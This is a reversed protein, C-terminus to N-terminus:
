KGEIARYRFTPQKESLNSPYELRIVQTSAILSALKYLFFWKLPMTIAKVVTIRYTQRSWSFPAV